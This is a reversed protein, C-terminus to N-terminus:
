KEYCTVCIEHLHALTKKAFDNLQAVKYPAYAIFAGHQSEILTFIM